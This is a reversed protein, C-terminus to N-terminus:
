KSSSSFSINTAPLCSAVCSQCRSTKSVIDLDGLMVLIMVMTLHIAHAYHHCNHGFRHGEFFQDLTMDHGSYTHHPSTHPWMPPPSIFIAFIWFILEEYSSNTNHLSLKLLVDPLRPAMRLMGLSYCYLIAPLFVRTLRLGSISSGLLVMWFAKLAHSPNDQYGFCLQFSLHAGFSPNSKQPRVQGCHIHGLISDHHCPQTGDPLFGDYSTQGSINSSTGIVSVMWAMMLRNVEWQALKLSVWRWTQM